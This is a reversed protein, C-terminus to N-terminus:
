DDVGAVGFDFAESAGCEFGDFLAAAWVEHVDVVGGCEIM